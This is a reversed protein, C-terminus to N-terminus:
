IIVNLMLKFQHNMIKIQIVTLQETVEVCYEPMQQHFSASWTQILLKKDEISAKSLMQLQETLRSTSRLILHLKETEKAHILVHSLLVNASATMIIFISASVLVEILGYGKNKAM